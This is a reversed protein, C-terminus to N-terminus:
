VRWGGPMTHAGRPGQGRGGVGALSVPLPRRAQGARGGVEVEWPSLGLPQVSLPFKEAKVRLVWATDFRGCSPSVSFM